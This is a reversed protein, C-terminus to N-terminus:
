KDMAYNVEKFFEDNNQNIMYRVLGPEGDYISNSNNYEYFKDCKCPLPKVNKENTNTKLRRIPINEFTNNYEGSKCSCKISEIKNNFNYDINFLNDGSKDKVNITFIGNLKDYLDKQKKCRSNNEVKKNITDWYIITSIILLLIIFLINLLIEYINWGTTLINFFNNDMNNVMINIDNLSYSSSM